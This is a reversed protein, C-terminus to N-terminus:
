KLLGNRMKSCIMTSTVGVQGEAEGGGRDAMAYQKTHGGRRAEIAQHSRHRLRPMVWLDKWNVPVSAAEQVCEDPASRTRDQRSLRSTSRARHHQEASYGSSYSTSGSASALVGPATCAVVTALALAALRM